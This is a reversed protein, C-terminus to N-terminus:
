LELFNEGTGTIYGVVNVQGSIERNYAATNTYISANITSIVDNVIGGKASTDVVRRLSYTTDLNEQPVEEDTVVFKSHKYNGNDRFIKMLIEHTIGWKENWSEPNNIKSTIYKESLFNGIRRKNVNPNLAYFDYYGRIVQKKTEKIRKLEAASYLNMGSNEAAFEANEKEKYLCDHFRDPLLLNWGWSPHYDGLTITDVDGALRLNVIKTDNTYKDHVIIDVGDESLISFDYTKGDRILSLVKGKTYKEDSKQVTLVDNLLIEDSVNKGKTERTIKIDLKDNIVHGVLDSHNMSLIRVFDRLENIGEFSGKEYELIEEGMMKLNSILQSLYCTKVNARDDLFRRSRTMTYNLLNKGSLVNVFFEKVNETEDFMPHSMYVDILKKIDFNYSIEAPVSLEDPKILEVKTVFFEREVNESLLVYFKCYIYDFLTFPLRKFWPEIDDIRNNFM